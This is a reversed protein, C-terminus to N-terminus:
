SGVYEFEPLRFLIPSVNTTYKDEPTISIGVSWPYTVTISGTFKIDNKSYHISVKQTGDFNDDDLATEVSSYGAYHHYFKYNTGTYNSFNIPVIVGFGSESKFEMENLTNYEDVDEGVTFNTVGSPNTIGHTWKRKIISYATDDFFRMHSDVTLNFLDRRTGLNFGQPDTTWEYRGSVMYQGATSRKVVYSTLTMYSNFVQKDHSITDSNAFPTMGNRQNEQLQKVQASERQYLDKTILETTPILSDLESPDVTIYLQNNNKSSFKPADLTTYTTRYYNTTEVVSVADAYKEVEDEAMDDIFEADFGLDLLVSKGIDYASNQVSLSIANASFDYTKQYHPEPESAVAGAFPIM